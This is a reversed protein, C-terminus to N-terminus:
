SQVGLIGHFHNLSETLNDGLAITGALGAEKLQSAEPEALRGALYIHQLEAGYRHILTMLTTRGLTGYDENDGCLIVLPSPHAAYADVAQGPENVPESSQAHIGGAALFNKIFTTRGNHRALPGLNILLATPHKGTQQHHAEAQYRLTEFDEALSHQALTEVAGEAPMAHALSDWSAGELVKQLKESFSLGSYQESGLPSAQELKALAGQLVDQSVQPPKPRKEGLNAFESAGTLPRKRKQLGKQLETWAGGLDKQLAGSSLYAYIGGQAEIHQFQQWAAECLEETRAEIYYSGGAPDIVQDLHSEEKLVIQTNRAMRQALQSSNGLSSDFGAFSMTEAGGVAGAFCAASTRLLNVWPDVKTLMRQSGQVTVPPHHGALGLHELLQSTLQRAARLKCIGSFVDADLSLQLEIRAALDQRSVGQQEMEQLYYLYSSLLTALELASHAGANHVPSSDVRFLSVQPYNQGLYRQLQAVRPFANEMGGPYNGFRYLASLPDAGLQAVIQEKPYNRRECLGLFLAAAAEVQAEALLSVEIYPIQVGALALDLADLSSIPTGELGLPTEQDALPLAKQTARDWVLEIASVGGKLGSLIDRNLQSLDPHDFRQRLRWGRQAADKGRLAQIGGPYPETSSRVSYLPELTIGEPTPTQLRSAYSGGKLSATADEKWAAQDVPAFEAGLTLKEAM